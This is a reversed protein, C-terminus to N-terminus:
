EPMIRFRPNIGAEIQVIITNINQTAWPFLGSKYVREGIDNAQREIGAVAVDAGTICIKTCGTDRVALAAIDYGDCGITM